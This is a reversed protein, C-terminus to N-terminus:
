LAICVYVAINIDEKSVVNAVHIFLEYDTVQFVRSTDGDDASVLPSMSNMCANLKFRPIITVLSTSLGSIIAAPLSIIKM